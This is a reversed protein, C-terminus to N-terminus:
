TLGPKLWCSFRHNRLHALAKLPKWKWLSSKMDKDSLNQITVSNSESDPQEHSSDFPKRPTKHLYLAKSIEEIDRLLLGRSLDEDERKTSKAESSM